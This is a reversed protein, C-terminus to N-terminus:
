KSLRGRHCLLFLKHSWREVFNYAKECITLPCDSISPNKNPFDVRGYLLVETASQATWPKGRSMFEGADARGGSWYEHACRSFTEEDISHHLRLFDIWAADHTSYSYAGVTVCRKLVRNRTHDPHAARYAYADNKSGLLYLAWLRSPYQTFKAHRFLELNYETRYNRIVNSHFSSIASPKALPNQVFQLYEPSGGGLGPVPGGSFSGVLGM